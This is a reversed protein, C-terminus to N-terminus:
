LIAEYLKTEYHHMSIISQGSVHKLRATPMTTQDLGPTERVAGLELSRQVMHRLAAVM